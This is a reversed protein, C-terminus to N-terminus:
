GQRHLLSPSKGARSEDVRPGLLIPTYHVLYLVFAFTWLGGSLWLVLAYHQAALVPGLVRILASLAVCYLALVISSPLILARGTHGLAVRAMMGLTMLGIGGVTLMHTATSEGIAGTLLAFARLVLSLATCGFGVHLVSLIPRTLTRSGGWGWLRAANLAGAIAAGYGALKSHPAALDLVLLVAMAAIGSTDLASHPRAVIGPVANATFGPLIRGGIVMILLAIVDLALRQGRVLSLADGRLAGLWLLANAAALVLLMVPMAANRKNRTRAIPWAVSLALAPLFALDIAASLEPALVGGVACAVRGALWLGALALLLGGRAVVQGTWNQVATLLFGAIVATTYGFLMEHAHWVLPPLPSPWSAGLLLLALWAPVLLSASLAALLFFPRFGMTLLAM